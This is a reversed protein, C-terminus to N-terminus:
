QHVLGQRPQDWVQVRLRERVQQPATKAIGEFRQMGEAIIDRRGADDLTDTGVHKEVNKEVGAGERNADPKSEGAAQRRCTRGVM